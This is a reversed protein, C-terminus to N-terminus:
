NGATQRHLKKRVILTIAAAGTALGLALVGGILVGLALNLPKNPRVPRLGPQAQDIIEVLSSPPLAVDIKASAVKMILTRRLNAEAELEQKASWYAPYRSRLEEVVPEPDPVNAEKRLRNLKEQASAVRKEQADAREAMPKIGSVLGARRQDQRHALYAEAIANAISAAEDPSESFVRIEILSTHGLPRLDLRGKLIALTESTRLKEGGAYKKGWVMNLDLAQIVTNLIAASRIVEFETQIFHPDNLSFTGQSRETGAVETVDPEVKIRATSSYSEPLLFTIITAAGFVLLFVALFVGRFVRVPASRPRFVESIKDFM